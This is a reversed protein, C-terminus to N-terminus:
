TKKNNRSTAPQQQTAPGGATFNFLGQLTNRLQCHIHEFSPHHTSSPFSFLSFFLFIDDVGKSKEKPVGWSLGGSVGKMKM